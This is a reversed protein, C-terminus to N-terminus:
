SSSALFHNLYRCVFPASNPSENKAWRELQAARTSPALGADAPSTVLMRTPELANNARSGASHAPPLRFSVQIPSTRLCPHRTGGAPLCASCRRALPAGSLARKNAHHRLYTRLTMPSAWRSTAIGNLLNGSGKRMFGPRGPLHCKKSHASTWFLFGLALWYDDLGVAGADVDARGLQEDGHRGVPRFLRHAAEPREGFVQLGQGVPERLAPDLRHYHLGRPDIPYGNKLDQLRPSKLDAQDVGAVHLVHGAALAVHEVALPQLVQVRHSQKASREPRRVLDAGQPGIQPMPVHQDFRGCPVHLVHLLRERLHVQVKMVHDAVQGTDGAQRDQIRDEVAFAIRARQGRQAVPPDLRAFRRDHLREDAVVPRLVQKRESLGEGNITVILRLHLITIPLDLPLEAGELALRPFGRGGGNSALALLGFAVLRLEVQAGV